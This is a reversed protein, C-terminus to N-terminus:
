AVSDRRDRTNSSNNRHWRLYTAPRLAENSPRTSSHIISSGFLSVSFGKPYVEAIRRDLKHLTVLDAVQMQYQLWRQWIPRAQDPTFTGIVKEFLARADVYLYNPSIGVLLRRFWKSGEDARSILFNLYRVVYDVDHAFFRLGLEFIKSAVDAQPNIQHELLALLSTPKTVFDFFGYLHSKGAAEFVQWCVWKDSRIEKFTARLGASQGIRKAIRMWAVSAMGLETRKDLIVLARQENKRQREKEKEREEEAGVHVIGYIENEALMAEDEASLKLPGAPATPVGSSQQSISQGDNALHEKELADLEVRLKECFRRYISHLEEKKEATATANDSVFAIEQHEAFAFNLLFSTPNAEFGSRLFAVAELGVKRFPGKSHEDQEAKHAWLYALYRDNRYPTISM